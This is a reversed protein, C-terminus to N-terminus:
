IREAQKLLANWWVVMADIAQKAGSLVNNKRIFQERNMEESSSYNDEQARDVFMGLGDKHGQEVGNLHMDHFAKLRSKEWQMARRQVVEHSIDLFVEHEFIAATETAYVAGLTSSPCIAILNSIADFFETTPRFELRKDVDTGIEALSKKYIAAHNKEEDFNRQLEQFVGQEKFLRTTNAATSLFQTNRLSFQYHEIMLWELAPESFRKLHHLHNKVASIFQNNLNDISSTLKLTM